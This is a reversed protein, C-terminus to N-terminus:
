YKKWRIWPAKKAKLMQDLLDKDSKHDMCQWFGKHKFAKIEKLDTVKELPNSELVTADGQIFDLFKPKMVFFGGNIWGGDGPPKEKFGIVNSDQLILAGYRGPPQVATITALKGHNRHFEIQDNINLHCDFENHYNPIHSQWNNQRNLM